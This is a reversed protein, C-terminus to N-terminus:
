GSASWHGSTDETPDADEGVEETARLDELLLDKMHRPLDMAEIEEATPKGTKHLSSDRQRARNHASAARLLGYQNILHSKSEEDLAPDNRVLEEFTPVREAAGGGGPVDYGLVAVIREQPIGLVRGYAGAFDEIAGRGWIGREHESVKGQKLTRGTILSVADAVEVQTM